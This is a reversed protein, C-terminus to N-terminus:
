AACVYPRTQWQVWGLLLRPRRVAHPRTASEEAWDWCCLIKAGCSFSLFFLLVLWFLVQAVEHSGPNLRSLFFSFLLLFSCRCGCYKKFVLCVWPRLSLTCPAFARAQIRHTLFGQPEAFCEVHAHWTLAWYVYVYDESNKKKGEKSPLCNKKVTIEYIVPDACRAEGATIFLGSWLLRSFWDFTSKLWLSQYAHWCCLCESTLGDRKGHRGLRGKPGVKQGPWWNGQHEEFKHPFSVRAFVSALHLRYGM